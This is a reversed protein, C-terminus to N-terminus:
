GDQVELVLLWDGDGDGNTGSPSFDVNGTNDFGGMDTYTGSAPDYWMAKASGALKSMDVTITRITPMYVLVLRGDTSRAAAAYTDGSEYGNVVTRHETDPALDYWKRPELLDRVHRMQFTGPADMGKVWDETFQWISGHGYAHGAAGSLMAWYAQKRMRYAYQNNNNDEYHSEGLFVPKVPKKSYDEYVQPYVDGYNYATNWDLWDDNHFFNSSSKAGAHYTQLQHPATARIGKAVLRTEETLDGPDVDGGHMWIVHNFKGYRTGVYRGWNEANEENLHHRWDQEWASLWNPALMVCFGKEGARTLVWDVHEFYAPNPDAFSGPSLFPNHGDRNTQNVRHPLLQLQVATFGKQRRNELYLEAEGKTLKWILQWGTDAHYLFPRNNQDVLYRKSDSVRLPFAVSSSAAGCSLLFLALTCMLMIMTM